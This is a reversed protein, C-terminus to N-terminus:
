RPDYARDDDSLFGNTPFATVGDLLASGAAESHIGASPVGVSGVHGDAYCVNTQRLHRFSQTGAYVMSLDGEVSNGPARMFRNTGGAWGADGFMACSAAHRVQGPGVGLRARQWGSLWGGNGDPSPLFGETALYSTNYNYGTALEGQPPEDLCCPCQFARLEEDLFRAVAGPKWSGDAAREQDWHVQRWGAAGGTAPLWVTAAPFWDRHATAYLMAGSGLARLHSQCDMSKSTERAASLAPALIGVLTVIVGLVVVTEVLTLARKM